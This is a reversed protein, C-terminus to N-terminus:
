FGEPPAMDGAFAGLIVIATVEPPIVHVRTEIPTPPEIESTEPYIERHHKNIHRTLRQRDKFKTFCHTCTPM